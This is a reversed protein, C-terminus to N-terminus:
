QRSFASYSIVLTATPRATDAGPGLAPSRSIRNFCLVKLIIDVSWGLYTEQNFRCTCLHAAEIEGWQMHFTRKQGGM